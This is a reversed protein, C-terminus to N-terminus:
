YNHLIPFSPNKKIFRYVFGISLESFDAQSLNSNIHAAIYFNNTSNKNSNIAYYKLGLRGLFLNKLKYKTEGNVRTGQLEYHKKYFPKHINLGGEWDIGVHGLLVEAGISLYINSANKFPNEYYPETQENTIYDYYHQYFRYNVGLSLKVVNKYYIGGSIALSHVSKIASDEDIMVQIGNGYRVQLFGKQYKKITKKDFPIESEIIVKNKPYLATSLSLLASNLGQNPLKTHGNSHHFYGLGIRLDFNNKFIIDYYLAGQIAWTVNSSVAENTPNETPHYKTDFYSAGMGFKTSITHKKNLYFEIFPVISISNGKTKTGYHTAYLSIGTTPYNLISQWEGEPKDNKHAYSLGLVIQPSKGTVLEYSPISKGVLIEPRFFNTSNKQSFSNWCVIFLLFLSKKM